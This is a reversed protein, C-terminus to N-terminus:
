AAQIPKVWRADKSFGTGSLIAAPHPAPRHRSRHRLWYDLSIYRGAGTFFLSLLMLFYTAAFEIGNNLIVISGKETLWSYNGHERLIAKISALREGVETSNELSAQAAPLGAQALIGAMSTDPDGPAVAFWGNPWHVAFAAVLMTVMLPPALWRVGLGLLLAFGGLIETATAMAAMLGPLPLGLGWDPNGFWAVTSEFASLKHFGAALLIPALYLRFGLPALFDLCRSRDILNQLFSFAAHM